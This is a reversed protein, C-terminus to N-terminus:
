HTFFRSWDAVDPHRLPEVPAEDHHRRLGAQAISIIPFGNRSVAAFVFEYSRKLEVAEFFLGLHLHHFQIADPSSVFWLSSSASFHGM